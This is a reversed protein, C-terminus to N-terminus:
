KGRLTMLSSPEVVENRAETADVLEEKIEFDRFSPLEVVEFRDVGISRWGKFLIVFCDLRV